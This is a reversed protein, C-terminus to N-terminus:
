AIRRLEDEGGIIFIKNNRIVDMVFSDKKQVREKWEEPGFVTYNVDRRLVKEAASVVDNLTDLDPDGIIMLDIDSRATELNKAVSGYIFAFDVYGIEALKEHLVDALGVTKLIISKLEEYIPFKKNVWYYRVNAEKETELLGVDVLKKLEKQLASHVINLRKYLDTYYFREDPHNLFLTLLKIRTKSPMFTYLM